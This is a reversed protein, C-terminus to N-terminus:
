EKAKPPTVIIGVNRLRREPTSKNALLGQLIGGIQGLAQELEEKTAYIPALSFASCDGAIDIQPRAAYEQFEKLVGMMYQNFLLLYAQGNNEALNKGLTEAFDQNMAYVKEVTGRIPREEVINLLGSEVMSKLHRYLSTQPIEPFVEALQKATAQNKESIELVLKSRIPNTLCEMMQEQM